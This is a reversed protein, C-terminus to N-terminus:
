FTLPTGTAGDDQKGDDLDDLKETKWADDPQVPEQTKGETRLRKGLALWRSINEDTWLGLGIGQDIYKRAMTPSVGFYVAIEKQARFDGAPLKQAMEDLRDLSTTEVYDWTAM